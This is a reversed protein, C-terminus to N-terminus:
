AHKIHSNVWEMEFFMDHFEKDDIIQIAKNKVQEMKVLFAKIRQLDEDKMYKQQAQKINAVVSDVSPPIGGMMKHIKRELRRYLLTLAQNYEKNVRYWNIKEAFFSSTRFQLERIEEEVEEERKKKRRKRDKDKPM